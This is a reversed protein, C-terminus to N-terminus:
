RPLLNYIDVWHRNILSQVEKLTLDGDCLKDHLFNDVLTKERHQKVPTPLLNAIDNSGGLELSIFHDLEWTGTPRSTIGYSAYAEDKTAAGVDRHDKSWGPTCIDQVSADTFVAGPTCSVDPYGDRAVCGFTKTRSGPTFLPDALEILSTQISPKQANGQIAIITFIGTVAAIWLIRAYRPPM